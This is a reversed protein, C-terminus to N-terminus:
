CEVHWFLKVEARPALRKLKRGKDDTNRILGITDFANRRFLKIHGGEHGLHHAPDFERAPQTYGFETSFRSIATPSFNYFNASSVVMVKCLEFHSCLLSAAAELVLMNGLHYFEPLTKRRRREDTLLGRKGRMPPM